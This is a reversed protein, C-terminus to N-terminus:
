MRTIKILKVQVLKSASRHIGLIVGNLLVIHTGPTYVSEAPLFLIEEVGLDYLTQLLSDDNEDLTM